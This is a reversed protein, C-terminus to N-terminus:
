NLKSQRNKLLAESLFESYELMFYLCSDDHLFVFSCYLLHLLWWVFMSLIFRTIFRHLAKSLYHLYSFLFYKAKGLSGIQLYGHCETLICSTYVAAEACYFYHSVVHELPPKVVTYIAISQKFFTHTNM